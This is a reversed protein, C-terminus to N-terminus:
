ILRPVLVHACKARSRERLNCTFLQHSVTSAGIHVGSASTSIPVRTRMLSMASTRPNGASWQGPTHKFLKAETDTNVVLSDIVANGREPKGPARQQVVVAPSKPLHHAPETRQAANISWGPMSLCQPTFKNDRAICREHASQSRINSEVKNQAVRLHCHASVSASTPPASQPRHLRHCRDPSCTVNQASLLWYSAKTRIRDHENPGGRIIGLLSRDVDCRLPATEAFLLRDSTSTDQLIQLAESQSTPSISYPASATLDVNFNIFGTNPPRRPPNCLLQACPLRTLPNALCSTAALHSGKDQAFWLQAIGPQAADTSQHLVAGHPADVCTQAAIAPLAVSENQFGTYMSESFQDSSAPGYRMREMSIGGAFTIEQRSNTLCAPSSPPSSPNAFAPSDALAQLSAVQAVVPILESTRSAHLCSTATEALEAGKVLGPVSCASENLTRGDWARKSDATYFATDPTAPEGPPVPLPTQPSASRHLPVAIDKTRPMPSQTHHKRNINTSPIKISQRRKLLSPISLMLPSQLVDTHLRCRTTQASTTACPGHYKSGSRLLQLQLAQALHLIKDEHGDRLQQEFDDQFSDLIGLRAITRM